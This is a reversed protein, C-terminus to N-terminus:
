ILDGSSISYVFEGVKKRIDMIETGICVWSAGNHFALRMESKSKIGGEAIVNVNDKLKKILEFDQKGTMISAFTTAVLGLMYKCDLSEYDEYNEIDAVTPIANDYCYKLLKNRERNKQRCDIATYTSWSAVEDIAEIETTIYYEKLHFKKLGIVPVSININVDTRIAVAGAQVAREALEQTTAKSYEQISVILGRRM